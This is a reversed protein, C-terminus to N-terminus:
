AVKGLINKMTRRMGVEFVTQPKWGLKRIKSSDLMRRQSGEPMSTDYFIKLKKDAFQLAILEVVERVSREENSDVNYVDGAKGKEALLLLADVADGVYMFSRKQNGSGFVQVTDKAEIFKRIMVPIFHGMQDYNDQEGYVNIFRVSVTELGQNEYYWSALKEGVQKALAYGLKSPEPDTTDADEPTPISNEMAYRSYVSASSIQVFRKVGATNAMRIPMMQLLMNEEFMVETRGQDFDVGTNLAALNFVIDQGSFVKQSKKEDRLDIQHFSISDLVDAIKDTSGRSLDDVVTVNAGLEVLKRVLHSGIFGAGGTVLVKKNDFFSNM